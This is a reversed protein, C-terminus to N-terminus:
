QQLILQRALSRTLSHPPLPCRRRLLFHGEERRRRRGLSFHFNTSLSPHVRLYRERRGRKPLPFAENSEENQRDVATRGGPLHVRSKGNIELLSLSPSGFRDLITSSSSRGKRCGISPCYKVQSVRRKSEGRASSM